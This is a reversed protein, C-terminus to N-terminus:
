QAGVNKVHTEVRHHFESKNYFKSKKKKFTIM